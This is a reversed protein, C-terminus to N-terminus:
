VRYPFDLRVYLDEKHAAISCINELFLIDGLFSQVQQCLGYRGGHKELSYSFRQINSIDTCSRYPLSPCVYVGKGKRMHKDSFRLRTIGPVVKVTAGEVATGSSADKIPLIVM